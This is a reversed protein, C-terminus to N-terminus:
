MDRLPRPRFLIMLERRNRVGLKGYVESLYGKITSETVGMRKAIERNSLAMTALNMAEVERPTLQRLPADFPASEASWKRSLVSVVLTPEAWLRGDALAALAERLASPACSPRLYGRYGMLLVHRQDEESEEVLALTPVAFPPPLNPRGRLDRVAVRAGDVDTVEFGTAALYSELAARVLAHGADVFVGVGCQKPQDVESVSDSVMGDM